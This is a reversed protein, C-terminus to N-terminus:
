EGKVKGKTIKAKGKMWRMGKIKKITTEKRMIM